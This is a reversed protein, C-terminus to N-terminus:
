SSPHREAAPNASSPRRKAQRRSVLPEGVAVTMCVVGILFAYSSGPVLLGHQFAVAASFLLLPSLSAGPMTSARWDQPVDPDHTSRLSRLPPSM